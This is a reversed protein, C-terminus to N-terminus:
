ESLETKPDEWGALRALLWWAAAGQRGLNEESALGQLRYSPHSVPAENVMYQEGNRWSEIDAADLLIGQNRLVSERVQRNFKALLENAEDMGITSCVLRVQPLREALGSMVQLYSEANLRGALLAGEDPRVVAVTAQSDLIAKELSWCWEQPDLAVGQPLWSEERVVLGLENPSAVPALRADKSGLLRLGLTVPDDGQASLVLLRHQKAQELWGSPIVNMATHHHDVVLADNEILTLPGDSFDDQSSDGAQLRISYNIGAAATGNANAGVTWLYSGQDAPLSGAIQGIKAAKNYLTLRVTGVYGNANWTINQTTGLEWSEGGNPATLELQAPEILGLRYDSPEVITNDTSRLYLRYDSGEPAMGSDYTQGVTWAYSGASAPINAVINGFRVGNKFLVLRVTGTYNIANWTIAKTCGLTWHEWGNPSTLELAPTLAAAYDQGAQDSTVNSYNRSAPTFVYGALTPTVTGSWDFDVSSSYYGSAATAPNGPLGNMVVGALPSSNFLITGSIVPAIVGSQIIFVNDSADSPNGDSDSVRVLCNVSPTDPVIWPHTGDNATGAVVPIWSTGNDISYDINVSSLSGSSSWTINRNEGATWMDGGNPVLVSLTAAPASVVYVQLKGNADATDTIPTMSMDHLDLVHMQRGSSKSLLYVIRNEDIWDVYYVYEGSVLPVPTSFGTGDTNILGLGTSASTCALFIIRTGSPSLRPEHPSPLADPLLNKNIFDSSEFAFNAYYLVNSWGNGETGRVYAVKTQESNLDYSQTNQGAVNTLQTIEGTSIRLQAAEGDGAYSNGIFLIDPDIGWEVPGCYLSSTVAKVQNSGDANMTWIEHGSAGYAIKQGDRSWIPDGAPSGALLTKSQVSYDQNLTLLSVGSESGYVIKILSDSVSGTGSLNIVYPNEDSDNNAIGLLASKTGVSTPAFRVIFTTSGSPVVPSDPQQTVSFQDAGAGSLTVKPTGDLVLDANGSNEVLFTIESGAGVLITGFNFDGGSAISSTGQKVDIEPAGAGLVTFNVGNSGQGGSTTVVVPGTAAGAPVVTQIQTASWSTIAALAGNFTVTGQATGFNSGNVTVPTGVTGQDPVLSEIAPAPAALEYFCIDDLYNVIGTPSSWSIDHHFYKLPQTVTDVTVEGKYEGDYWFRVKGEPGYIEVRIRHWTSNTGAVQVPFDVDWTTWPNSSVWDAKNTNSSYRWYNQTNVNAGFLFGWGSGWGETDSLLYGTGATISNTWEWFEIAIRSSSTNLVYQMNAGDSSSGDYLRASYSGNKSNETSASVGESYTWGVLDGDEFDDCSVSPTSEPKEANYIQRIQDITMASQMVKLGDICGNFYSDDMGGGQGGISFPWNPSNLAGSQQAEQILEGNIYLKTASQDYSFAVHLWQDLLPDNYALWTNGSATCVLSQISNVNYWYLCYAGATGPENARVLQVSNGTGQGLKKAWLMITFPGDTLPHSDLRAYDNTGDYQIAYGTSGGNDRIGSAVWQAGNYVTGSIGNANTDAFTSGTGENFGFIYTKGESGSGRLNIVYPDEDSDNNAISLNANKDGESTPAFRVIFTTSGLPVVPSDPQQIVEFQDANTGSLSVKPTGSLILDANGTNQITFTVDASAGVQHTGFNYFGGSPLATEGYKIKIEPATQTTVTFTVGNSDVGDSTRAVVAGTAAGAPVATQIQTDNWSTIAASTGNFTVTGQTAGFNSGNLTVPTGAEGQDPVLSSISPTEPPVDMIMVSLNANKTLGGETYSATVLCGQDFPVETTTLLGSGNISAYASNEGWSPEVLANTNDSYYARCNYDQTANENVQNPGEIAISSLTKVPNVTLNVQITQPTNAANPDSITITANYSGAPLGSTSYTVNVMDTEGTSSGSAPSCELWACGGDSITYNLIGNGGNYLYIKEGPANNGAACVPSLLDPMKNIIPIGTYTGSIQTLQGPNITVDVNAPM